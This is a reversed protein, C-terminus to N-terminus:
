ILLAVCDMAESLSNFKDILESKGGGTPIEFVHWWINKHLEIYWGDEIYKFPQLTLINDEFKGYIKM